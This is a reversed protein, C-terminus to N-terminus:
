GYMGPSNRGCPAVRTCDHWYDSKRDVPFLETGVRVLWGPQVYEVPLDLPATYATM